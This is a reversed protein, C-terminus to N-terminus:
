DTLLASSYFQVTDRWLAFTISKVSTTPHDTIFQKIARMAIPAARDVPFGFIGTSLSPFAISTLKNEDAVKLANYYANHLLKDCTEARKSDWCPGVAHIVHKAKLNGGASTIMAHGEEVSPRGGLYKRCEAFIGEGGKKRIAGCVGMGATLGTNAANVIADVELDCIDDVITVIIDTQNKKKSAYVM